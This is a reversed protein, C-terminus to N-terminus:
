RTARWWVRTTDALKRREVRGAAELRAMDRRATKISVGLVRALVRVERSHRCLAVIRDHRAAVRSAIVARGKATQQQAPTM